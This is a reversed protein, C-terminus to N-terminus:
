WVLRHSLVSLAFLAATEVRLVQPGFSVPCGGAALVVAVEDPTLDGEPGIVMGVSGVGRAQAAELVGGLPETDPQIVGVLLLEPLRASQLAAELSMAVPAVEPVDTRGCQRAASEAIRQWRERRTAAQKGELRVITRSTVMPVVRTVGLETGKEVVLEMRRQKPIAQYLALEVPPRTADLEHLVDCYGADRVGGLRVLAERGCGDFLKLEDGASLRLVDFLYHAAKADLEV